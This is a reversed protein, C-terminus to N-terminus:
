AVRRKELTPLVQQMRSVTEVYFEDRATLFGYNSNEGDPNRGALPQDSYEFVHAGVCFPEHSLIDFHQDLEDAKKGQTDVIPGTGISNGSWGEKVRFGFETLMVPKGSVGQMYRINDLNPDADYSNLSIVDCYKGAARVVPEKAYGAFRVGLLMHNTDYRRVADSTVKFFEEAVVGAFEDKHQQTASEKTTGKDGLFSEARTRGGSGPELTLYADLIEFPSGDDLRRWHTADWHMENGLFYGILHQDDKRPACWREAVTRTGDRWASDFVDPIYFKQWIDSRPSDENFYLMATYSVGSGKLANGTLLSESSWSGITNFKWDWLRRVTARGWNQESGYKRLNNQHWESVGTKDVHEDFRIHNIGKSWFVNGEPSVLWHKNQLEQTHFFGTKTGQLGKWGGFQDYEGLDLPEEKPPQTPPQSPPLIPPPAPLTVPRQGGLNTVGYFVGVGTATAAAILAIAERRSMPRGTLVVGPLAQL